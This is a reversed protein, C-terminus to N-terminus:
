VNWTQKVRLESTHESSADLNVALINEPIGGLVNELISRHMSEVISRIACSPISAAMYAVTYAGLISERMSGLM